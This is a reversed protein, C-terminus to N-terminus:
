KREITTQPRKAQGQDPPPGSANRPGDNSEPDVVKVWGPPLMLPLFNALTVLPDNIKPKEFIYVMNDKGNPLYIRLAFPSFGPDTLIVEAHHFNGADQQRKPWAELWVQKGVDKPDTIDRMWYRDKLQQAKAGFVFPLPGDAIAKGQFEPPL